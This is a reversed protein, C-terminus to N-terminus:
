TLTKLGRGPLGGIVEAASTPIPTPEGYFQRLQEIRIMHASMFEVARTRHFADTLDTGKAFTGHWKQIVVQEGQLCEALEDAILNWAYLSPPAVVRVRPRLYLMGNEDPPILEDHFFSLSVTKSPHAHIVARAETKQYIARHVEMASSAFFAQEDNERISTLVVDDPGPMGKAAARRSILMDDDGIRVSLNGGKFELLGLEVLLRSYVAMEERLHVEEAGYRRAIAAPGSSVPSGGGRAAAGAVLGHDLTSM